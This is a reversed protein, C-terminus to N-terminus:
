GRVGSQEWLMPSREVYELNNCQKSEAGAVSGGGHRSHLPLFQWAGLVSCPM